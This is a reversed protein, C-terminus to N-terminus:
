GPGDDRHRLSAFHERALGCRAVLGGCAWSPSPIGLGECRGRERALVRGIREVAESAQIMRGAWRDLDWLRSVPEKVIPILPCQSTYANHELKIGQQKEQPAEPATRHRKTRINQQRSSSLRPKTRSDRWIPMTQIDPEIPSRAETRRLEFRSGLSARPVRARSVQSGLSSGHLHLRGRGQLHHKLSTPPRVCSGRYQGRRHM